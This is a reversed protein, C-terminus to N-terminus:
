KVSAALKAEKLEPRSSQPDLQAVLQAYYKRAVDNKGAAKAARAAGVITRERHPERQLTAEYAELADAPQNHLM